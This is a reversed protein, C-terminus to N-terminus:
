VDVSRLDDSFQPKDAVERAPPNLFRREVLMFFIKAGIYSTVVVLPFAVGVLVYPNATAGLGPFLQKLVGRIPSHVLYLSYSFLGVGSLWKVLYVRPWKHNKEMEVCMNLLTFFTLGWFVPTLLTFYAEALAAAPFWVLIMWWSRLWVPCKVLGCYMEAAVMGLCWQIWLVIASSGIVGWSGVVGWWQSETSVFLRCVLPFALGCGLVLLVTKSLGLRRRWFILLFYLVYFYEERALTWFPVSGGARDFMPFFGHLMFAHTAFDALMWQSKPEPYARLLAVDRGLYLGIFLMAMCACLVIFYPPYLRYIRRRWFSLFDLKHHGSKSFRKSWRLHICFGSIVFFLPVGLRGFQLVYYLRNFWASPIERESWQIAHTFVVALAAVGRLFDISELRDTKM